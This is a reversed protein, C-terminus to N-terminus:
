EEPRGVLGAKVPNNHIYNLKQRAFELSFIAEPHSGEQWVQYKSESALNQERAHIFTDLTEVANQQEALRSIARSTHRKFNRLISSIDAADDPWLVAHLHTPMVVFANLQAHKHQRLHALSDLVITRYSDQTFLPLWEVLTCTIFYAYHKDTFTHWHSSM